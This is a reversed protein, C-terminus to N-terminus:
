QKENILNMIEIMAEAMEDGYKRRMEIEGSSVYLRGVVYDAYPSLINQEGRLWEAVERNADDRKRGEKLLAVLRPRTEGLIRLAEKHPLMVNAVEM